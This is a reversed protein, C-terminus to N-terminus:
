QVKGRLILKRADSRSAGAGISVIKDLREM